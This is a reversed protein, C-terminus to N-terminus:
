KRFIKNLSNWNIDVRDDWWNSAAGYVFQWAASPNNFIIDQTTENNNIENAHTQRLKKINEINSTIEPYIFSWKLLIYKWEQVVLQSKPVREVRRFHFITETYNTQILTNSFNEMKDRLDTLKKWKYLFFDPWQYAGSDNRYPHFEKVFWSLSYRKGNYEILNEKKNWSADIPVVRVKISRNETFELEEWWKLWIMSFKFNPKSNRKRDKTTYKQETYKQETDIKIESDMTKDQDWKYYDPWLIEADDLLEAYDSLYNFADQPLINFFEREKRIRKGALKELIKHIQREIIEYKETQLTAFIRFPLPVSTNDLEKSRVNVPRSSKWIKVWDERFSPNTLIYVYWRANQNAM